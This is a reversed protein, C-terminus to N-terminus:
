HRQRVRRCRRDDISLQDTALLCVCFTHRTSSSGATVRGTHGAPGAAPLGRLGSDPCASNAPRHGVARVVERVHGQSGAARRGPLRPHPRTARQGRGARHPGSPAPAVVARDDGPHDAEAGGACCGAARDGARGADGAPRHLARPGACGLGAARNTSGATSSPAWRFAIGTAGVTNVLVGAELWDRRRLSMELQNAVLPVELHAQLHAIQAVGM